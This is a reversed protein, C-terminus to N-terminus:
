GIGSASQWDDLVRRAAEAGRAGGSRESREILLKLTTAFDWPSLDQQGYSSLLIVMQFSPRDSLVGGQERRLTEIAEQCYTTPDM